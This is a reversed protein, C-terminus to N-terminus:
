EEIDKVPRIAYGRYCQTTAYQSQISSSTFYLKYATRKMEPEPYNLTSAWYRGTTTGQLSTYNAGYGTVPFFLQTNSEDVFLIGAVGSYDAIFEQDSALWYIGKEPTATTLAAPTTQTGEGGCAEYLAQFEASTPMRWDMSWNVRAADNGSAPDIDGTLASGPTLNYNPESFKGSEGLPTTEDSAKVWKSNKLVYGETNGWSFYWGAGKPDAAGINSTAWKLGAMEVFEHDVTVTCSAAKLGHLM